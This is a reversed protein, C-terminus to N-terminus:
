RVVRLDGYGADDAVPERLAVMLALLVRRESRLEVHVPNPTVGGLRTPIVPCQVAAMGQLLDCADAVHCAQRLLTLSDESLDWDAVTRAWLRRGAAGLGKPPRQRSATVM